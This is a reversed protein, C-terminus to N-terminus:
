KLLSVLVCVEHFYMSYMAVNIIDWERTSLSIPYKWFVDNKDFLSLVLSVPPETLLSGFDISLLQETTCSFSLAHLRGQTSVISMRVKSFVLVGTHNWSPAINSCTGKSDVNITNCDIEDELM